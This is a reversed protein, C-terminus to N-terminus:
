AYRCRLFSELRVVVGVFSLEQLKNDRWQATLENRYDKDRENLLLVIPEWTTAKPSLIGSGLYSVLTAARGQSVKRQQLQILM